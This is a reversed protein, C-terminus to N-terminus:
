FPDEFRRLATPGIGRTFDGLTSYANYDNEVFHTDWRGLPGEFILEVKPDYIYLTAPSSLSSYNSDSLISGLGASIAGHGGLDTWIGLEVINQERTASTQAVSVSKTNADIWTVASVNLNEFIIRSNTTFHPTGVSKNATKWVSNVEKQVTQLAEWENEQEKIRQDDLSMRTKLYAAEQKLEKLLQEIEQRIQDTVVPTPM